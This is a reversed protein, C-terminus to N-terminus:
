IIVKRPSIYNIEKVLREEPEFLLRVTENNNMVYAVYVKSEPMNSTYDFTKYNGRELRLAEQSDVPAMLELRKFDFTNMRKRKSKAIIKDVDLEGDMYIYEYEYNYSRFKFITFIIIGAILFAGIYPILILVCSLVCLVVLLAKVAGASKPPHCTVIQEVYNESM